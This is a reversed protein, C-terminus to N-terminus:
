FIMLLFFTVSLYLPKQMVFWFSKIELPLQLKMLFIIFENNMKKDMEYWDMGYATEQIIEGLDTIRQISDVCLYCLIITLVFVQLYAINFDRMFAVSVTAAAPIFVTVGPAIIGGIIDRILRFCEYLEQQYVVIDHFNQKVIELSQRRSLSTRQMLKILELSKYEFLEALFYTDISQHVTIM